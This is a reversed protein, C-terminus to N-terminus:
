FRKQQEIQRQNQLLESKGDKDDLLVGSFQRKKEVSVIQLEIKRWTFVCSDRCFLLKHCIMNTGVNRMHVLKELRCIKEVHCIKEVDVMHHRHCIDPIDPSKVGSIESVDLWFIYKSSGYILFGLPAINGIPKAAKDDYLTFGSLEFSDLLFSSVYKSSGHLSLIITIITKLKTLPMCVHAADLTLLVVHKKLHYTIHVHAPCSDVSCHKEEIETKRKFNLSQISKIEHRQFFNYQTFFSLLVIAKFLPLQYIWSILSTM